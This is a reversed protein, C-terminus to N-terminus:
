RDFFGDDPPQAFFQVTTHVNRLHRTRLINGTTMGVSKLFDLVAVVEPALEVPGGVLAKDTFDRAIHLEMGRRNFRGQVRYDWDPFVEDLIVETTSWDTLTM